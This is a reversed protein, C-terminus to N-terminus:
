RLSNPLLSNAACIAIALADTADDKARLDPIGLLLSVMRAVARKDAGGWNAVGRKVERPTFERISGRNGVYRMALFMVLGRAEAVEIGTAANKAFFLKEIGIVDPASRALVKKFEDGLFMLKEGTSRMGIGIIGTEVFSLRSGNKEIVGFGMRSSGPDIGLIRM